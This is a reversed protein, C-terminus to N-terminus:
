DQAHGEEISVIELEDQDLDSCNISILRVAKEGAEEESEAYVPVKTIGSSFIAQKVEVTFAHLEFDPDEASLASDHVAYRIGGTYGWVVDDKEDERAQSLEKFTDPEEVALKLDPPAPTRNTVYNMASQAGQAYLELVSTDFVRDWWDEITFPTNGDILVTKGALPHEEEHLTEMIEKNNNNFHAFGDLVVIHRPEGRM